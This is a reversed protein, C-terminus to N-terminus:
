ATESARFVLVFEGRPPHHEFHARHEAVTGRRVEEFQKTLERAVSMRVDGLVEQIAALSKMLRHPTEYCVITRPEGTLAELRRRRPGPKQPLYGEFVFRDMPLGSVTLAALAACPGPIAVVPVGAALAQPILYGGPDAIGPTGADSILAVSQGEGLRRLLAPTKAREVADYFSEVPTPIEYRALLIQAHRTDEAAILAAGRLVEVARATFDGLNGIPTAVLYLTGPM